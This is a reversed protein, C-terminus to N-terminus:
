KKKLIDERQIRLLEKKLEKKLLASTEPIFESEMGPSVGKVAQKDYAGDLAIQESELLKIAKRKTNDDINIAM